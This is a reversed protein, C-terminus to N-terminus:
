LNWHFIQVGALSILFVALCIRALACLVGFALILFISVMMMTGLIVTMFNANSSQFYACSCSDGADHAASRRANMMPNLCALTM